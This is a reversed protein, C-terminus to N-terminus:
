PSVFPSGYGSDPVVGACGYEAPWRDPLQLTGFLWDVAPLLGAYNTNWTGPESSHHWHHFFPTAVVRQLPGLRVNVNAHVLLGQVRKVAFYTSVTPVAFGLALVPLSTSVRAVIADVPHRRNPALWDLERASHHVRHFRWLVPLEHSLSSGLLRVGGVGAAGGGVAAMGSAGGAGCPGSLTAVSTRWAVVHRDPAARSRRGVVNLRTMRRRERAHPPSSSIRSRDVVRREDADREATHGRHLSSRSRCISLPTPGRTSSPNGTRLAIVLAV